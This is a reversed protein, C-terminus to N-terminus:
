RLRQRRCLRHHIGARCTCFVQGDTQCRQQQAKALVAGAAGEPAQAAGIGTNLFRRHQHPFHRPPPTGSAEEESLGPGLDRGLAVRRPGVERFDESFSGTSGATRHLQHPGSPTVTTERLVTRQPPVRNGFAIPRAISHGSEHGLLFSGACRGTQLVCFAARRDYWAASSSAGKLACFLLNKCFTSTSM